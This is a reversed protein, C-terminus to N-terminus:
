NKVMSIQNRIGNGNRNGNGSEPNRRKSSGDTAHTLMGSYQKGQSVKKSCFQNINWTNKEKFKQAGFHIFESAKNRSERLCFLFDVRLFVDLKIIISGNMPLPADFHM